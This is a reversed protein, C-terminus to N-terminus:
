TYELLCLLNKKRDCFLLQISLTSILTDSIKFSNWLYINLDFCLVSLRSCTKSERNSRNILCHIDWLILLSVEQNVYSGVPNWPM